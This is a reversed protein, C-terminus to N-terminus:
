IGRASSNHRENEKREWHKPAIATIGLIFYKFFVNYNYFILYSVNANIIM